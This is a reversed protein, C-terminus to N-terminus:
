AGFRLQWTKPSQEGIKALCARIMQELPKGADIVVFNQKGLDYALQRDVIEPTADSVDGKRSQVRQRLTARPADLWIGTFAVGMQVALAAFAEREEEKAQVADVIATQGGELALAARKRCAAYVLETVELAYASPPLKAEFPVGFMRKREVDSRIHVAGPFSGIRPALMRALTSKGSGSLGGIAILRPARIELYDRALLCYGHARSRAEGRDKKPGQESRLLEVKARIMARMSLFLPLTKLGILNATDGSIDLYANLVANAHDVLGRAGLDMLLFALDYLVDITALRDDFELADFLVPEGEIEVINRLHLDGHCQRVFGGRARAELLPTLAALARRSREALQAQVDAPVIEDRGAFAALNDEIIHTLPLVSQELTLTRDAGRHLEAIKAALRAMEALPLRGEAAMRDYLREQDFRRMRLAWEITKGPGGLAIDGSETSTIPILDLYIQPATRRNLRLENVLALRRKELSSFDLFPYKVEKKIKYANDGALFVVSAHTDIREIIANALGYATPSGMVQLVAAQHSAMKVM